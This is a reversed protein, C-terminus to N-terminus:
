NLARRKAVARRYVEAYQAASRGWSFDQAMARQRLKAIHHPRDYWTANAWGITNYLALSTDDWFKFGTGDGTAENYNEVTDDLGGTARVVPLTGYKLAYMQSLGCPEYRSPMLFFDSGAQIWHSLEEHYGIHVGVRGPHNRALWNFFDETHPNGNGLVVIQLIMTNLARPLADMLLSFGKQPAFRSVIGFIPQREDIELGFRQQLATKCIAKGRLDDPTYRAPILPDTAPNWHEYDCGNLIGYFDAARANLYPALGKGGAPTLIEKAHTPSVTTIADAFHIGAKLLNVKGHDEFKESTFHEWGVGLYNMVDAPYVGQYGINHITLVSATGSLPSLIREWTKLFVATVATPWDHLHMVDPIWQVDKCIQMAAKCLLAFRHANDSYDRDGENYIGPRAFFRQYEVFWVKVAADLVGAHVGIWNEEGGGMHVCASKEWQLRWRAYDVSGYLPICIRVECGLRVLAKSLGAVMDGLGGTKAFPACESTVM